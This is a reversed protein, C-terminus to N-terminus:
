DKVCRIGYRLSADNIHRKYMDDLIRNVGRSSMIYYYGEKNEVDEAGFCAVSEGYVNIQEYGDSGYNYCTNPIISFGYKDTGRAKSPWGFTTRLDYAYHLSDQARVYALLSDWDSTTAIHWGDPCLPDVLLSTFPFEYHRGYDDCSKGLCTSNGSAYRLNEAMWTAGNIVVTKYENGDRDDVLTGYKGQYGYPLKTESMCRINFMSGKRGSIARLDLTDDIAELVYVTTDSADTGSWLAIEKSDFNERGNWVLGVAVLSFGTANTGKFTPNNASVLDRARNYPTTVYLLTDLDEKTPLRWGAPCATKSDDYSYYRGYRACAFDEGVSDASGHCISNETEYNLNEAMWRVPGIDITKYTKNDRTDTFTGYTLDPNLFSLTDDILRGPMCLLGTAKATDKEFKAINSGKSFVYSGKLETKKAGGVLFRAEDGNTPKIGLGFLDFAYDDGWGEQAKLTFGAFCRGGVYDFLEEWESSDAVHWDLPCRRAGSTEVYMTQKGIKLKGDSNSGCRNRGNVNCAQDLSFYPKAGHCEKRDDGRVGFTEKFMKVDPILEGKVCRLVGNVLSDTSLTNIEYWNLDFLVYGQRLVSDTGMSRDSTYFWNAATSQSDPAAISLGFNDTGKGKRSENDKSLFLRMVGITNWRHDEDLGTLLNLLDAWERQQPIRWGDPCIGQLPNDCVDNGGCFSKTSDAIDARTYNRGYKSCDKDDGKFCGLSSAPAYNLNQAMWTQGDVTITRYERGDRKDVFSGTVIKSVDYKNPFYDPEESSESTGSSSSKSSSNSGSSNGTVSSSSHEDESSIEESLDDEDESYESGKGSCAAFFQILLVALGLSLYQMMVRKIM